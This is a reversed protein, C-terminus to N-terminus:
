QTVINHKLKHNWQRYKANESKSTFIKEVVIRIANFIFMWVIDYVWILAIMQWSISEMGLWGMYCIIVAVIQTGFISLLLITSPRPKQWFWKTKHRSIFLILHGAVAIQLFLVTQIERYFGLSFLTNKYLGSIHALIEPHQLLAYIIFNQIVAVIGMIIGIIFVKNKHWKIPLIDAEANDYAIAMMPIYDLLAVLVVMIATMPIGLAVKPLPFFIIAFTLFLLVDLTMVVRYNMYASMINFIKRSAKIANSIVSLGPATLILDASARAADTAGQVAVGVNARKLAPADNVGDGTMAVTHGLNQFVKVIGHKHEPFVRAFGDATIIKRKLSKTVEDKNEINEEEKFINSAIKINTGMGLQHSTEVAIASDDGTVMRVKLGHTKVDEIVQTSDERPPDFLSLIGSLMFNESNGEVIAVGLSRYGREALSNVEKLAKNKEDESDLCKAIIVQPAGKIITYNLGNKDTVYGVTMKTVPDFPIYKTQKYESLTGPDASAVCTADIAETSDQKSALAAYLNLESFNKAGFLIPEKLSLKNQTLTGTKDSCLIDVGALEEISQLRSVIAKQKSLMLAGLAMTITLVAPMAVPISAVIIVLVLSITDGLDPHGMMMVIFVIICFLISLSTLYNGITNVSKQFNSLQSDQQSLEAIKGFSTNAGTFTVLCDMDGSKVVSGSYGLDGIKKNVPLSEGTLAAQDISCYEGSVMICDAPIINGNSINIIDGPVLNKSEITCWKGDRKVRSKPAMSNKLAELAGAAKITQFYEISSNICLMCLILWFDTWDYMIFSLVCAVIILINIPGSLTHLFIKFKSKKKEELQNFGFKNIRTAADSSSLGDKSSNINKFEEDINYRKEAM